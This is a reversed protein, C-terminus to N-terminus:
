FRKNGGFSSSEDNIHRDEENEEIVGLEKQKNRAKRQNIKEKLASKSAKEVYCASTVATSKHNAWQSALNLDGTDKYISNIATKRACHARFDSIGIIKGYMQMRTHIMGRTWPIWKGEYFHTFISDCELKDYDEKRMQLWEEILEKCRDDFSVDVHYGEKERIQEFVMEELNLSSLTLKELAGIRNASFIAIEFLLIDQIDYKDNSNLERRIAMVQDDTLFYSNLIHEEDAKKMRDLKGQFPHNKILGRKSSWLYFSSVAAVKNNITKKHNKLTDQCFSMYEEMIDVAENLFQESYLDYSGDKYENALWTMFLEFNSQYTYYTTEKTDPNSVTSSQLYKKYKKINSEPVKAFKEDTRYKVKEVHAM